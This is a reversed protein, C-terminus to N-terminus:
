GLKVFAGVTMNSKLVHVCLCYMHAYMYLLYHGEFIWSTGAFAFSADIERLVYVMQLASNM